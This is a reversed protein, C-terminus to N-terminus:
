PGGCAVSVACSAGVPLGPLASTTPAMTAKVDMRELLDRQPFQIGPVPFISRTDAHVVPLSLVAGGGLQLDVPAPTGTAQHDEYTGQFLWLVLNHGAPVVVELPEFEVRAVYSQGPVLTEMTEGGDHYRLNLHAHGVIPVGYPIWINKDQGVYPARVNGEPDQDFLWAGLQGGSGQPTFPIMMRPLGSIRTDNAFPDSKLVVINGPGAPTGPTLRVTSPSGQETTLKDATLHLSTWEPAAPPFSDANRWEGLNDQVQISPGLDQSKDDKLYHDLWRGLVEAFDLRCPLTVWHERVLTCRSDPFAHDWQGYWEKMELGAARLDTNFPIASHPDVNWDQLGHILFVSGKYNQLVAPKHNRLVWYDSEASLRDGTESTAVGLAAGRWAEPCLLNQRDQYTERGNAVGPHPLQQMPDPVPVPAPVPSSPIAVPVENYPFGDSFGFPWYVLSHMIYGRTEPTGNHFMLDYIDPLGSVPIITKLHPNGTSAVEWPTSGDYSAGIMAVNGNSWTQEGLYTIAQDLDHVESPGMLDMCGGSTGTGRVAVQAVAYGKPLFNRLLFPTTQGPYDITDDVLGATCPNQGPRLCHQGEEYYPGADIIVPVPGTANDPRWIAMTIYVAGDNASEGVPSPYAPLTSLLHVVEPDGHTLYGGVLVTSGQGFSYNGQFVGPNKYQADADFGYYQDVGAPTPLRAMCGSLAMALLAVPLLIAIARSAM